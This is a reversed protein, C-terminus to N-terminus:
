EEAETAKKGKGKKRTGPIGVGTVFTGEDAAPPEADIDLLIKGSAPDTLAFAKAKQKLLERNQKRQAGEDFPVVAMSDAQVFMKEPESQIKANQIPFGETTSRRMVEEVIAEMRPDRKEIIHKKSAALDVPRPPRKTRKRYKTEGNVQIVDIEENEHARGEFADNLVKLNFKGDQAVAM